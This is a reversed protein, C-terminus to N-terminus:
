ITHKNKIKEELLTEYIDYHSEYTEDRFTYEDSDEDYTFQSFDDDNLMYDTLEGNVYFCKGYIDNGMEEYSLEFDCKFHDAIIVIDDENPSWKTNYSIREDEHTIDFMYPNRLVSVTKDLILIDQSPIDKETYLDEPLVGQDPNKSQLKILQDFLEIAKEKNEGKFELSHFCWNPM